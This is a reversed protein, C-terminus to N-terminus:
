PEGSGWLRQSQVWGEHGNVNLICWGDSCKGLAGIVGPELNWKLKASENAEARMPALGEGIVIAGRDPTLLRSAVWGQAGDPDQILRWGEMVRVVKVPLGRRKYVWDIRYEPSPGVRMNVEGARMAAWYPVDRNQANALSVPVVMALSSLIIIFLRMNAAINGM